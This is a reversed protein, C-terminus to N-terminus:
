ACAVADAVDFRRTRTQMVRPFLEFGLFEQLATLQRVESAFQQHSRPHHICIKVHCGLEASPACVAGKVVGLEPRPGQRISPVGSGIERTGGRGWARWWIVIETPPYIEHIRVFRVVNLAVSDAGAALQQFDTSCARFHRGPGHAARRIKEGLM